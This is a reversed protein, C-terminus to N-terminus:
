EVKTANIRVLWSLLLLDLTAQIHGYTVTLIRTAKSVQKQNRQDLLGRPYIEDEQGQGEEESGKSGAAGGREGLLLRKFQGLGFLSGQDKGRDAGDQWLVFSRFEVDSKDSMIGEGFPCQLGCGVVVRAMLSTLGCLSHDPVCAKAVWFVEEKM